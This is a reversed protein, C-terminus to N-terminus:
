NSFAWNGIIANGYGLRRGIGGDSLNGVWGKQSM